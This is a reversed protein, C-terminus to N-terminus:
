KTTKKKQHDQPTKKPKSAPIMSQAIQELGIQKFFGDNEMQKILLLLLSFFNGDDDDKHEEFYQKVLIKADKISTVTGDGETGHNELLGAYFCVLATQPLDSMGAIVEELTEGETDGLRALLLSIKEGCEKYLAAEMTFEIHCEKGGIQLDLM